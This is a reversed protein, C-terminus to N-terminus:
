KKEWFPTTLRKIEKLQTLLEEKQKPTLILYGMCVMRNLVEEVLEETVNM